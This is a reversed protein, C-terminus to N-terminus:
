SVAPGRAIRFMVGRVYRGCNMVNVTNTSLKVTQLSRPWIWSDVLVWLISKQITQKRHNNTPCSKWQAFNSFSPEPAAVPVSKDTQGTMLGRGGQGGSRYLSWNAGSARVRGFWPDLHRLLNNVPLSRRNNVSKPAVQGAGGLPPRNVDNSADNIRHKPKKWVDDFVDLDINKEFCRQFMADNLLFHSTKHSTKPKLHGPGM